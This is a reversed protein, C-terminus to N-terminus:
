AAPGRTRGFASRVDDPAHRFAIELRDDDDTGSSADAMTWDGFYREPIPRDVVIEFREHRPDVAIRRLLHAIAEPTGELAQVFQGDENRLVGSVGEIGNNRRSVTLIDRLGAEGLHHRATSRYVVIRLDSM